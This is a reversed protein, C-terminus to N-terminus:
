REEGPNHQSVSLRSEVNDIRWLVPALGNLISRQHAARVTEYLTPNKLGNLGIRNMPPPKRYIHKGQANPYNDIPATTSITAFDDKSQLWDDLEDTYYGWPYAFHQVERGLRKELVRKSELIEWKSRGLTAQNLPIHNVTHAGVELGASVWEKLDEWSMVEYRGTSIDRVGADVFGTCVFLCAPLQRTRLEPLCNSWVTKDADDFTLTLMSRDISNSRLKMFGGSLSTVEYRKEISTLLANFAERNTVGHLCLVTWHRSNYRLEATKTSLWTKFAGTVVRAVRMTRYNRYSRQATLMDFLRSARTM